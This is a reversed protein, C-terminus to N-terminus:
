DPAAVSAGPPHGCDAHDAPAARGFGQWCNEVEIEGCNPCTWKRLALDKVAPNQSGCDHCLSSSPFFPSIPVLTKGYQQAM